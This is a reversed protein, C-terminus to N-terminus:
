AIKTTMLLPTNLQTQITEKVANVDGDDVLAVGAIDALDVVVLIREELKVVVVM